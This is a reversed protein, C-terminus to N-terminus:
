TTTVRRRRLVLAVNGYISANSGVANLYQHEIDPRVEAPLEWPLTAAPTVRVKVTANLQGAEERCLGLPPGAPPPPGGPLPM